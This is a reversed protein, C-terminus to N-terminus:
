MDFFRHVVNWDYVPFNSAVDTILLLFLANKGNSAAVDTNGNYTIIKNFPRQLDVVAQQVGGATMSKVVDSYIKFRNTLLQVTSYSATVTSSSLVDSVLPLTGVNMSDSFIIIRLSAAVAGTPMFVRLRLRTTELKIQAGDRQLTSDGQTIGQTLAWIQGAATSNQNTTAAIFCKREAMSKIVSMVQTRVNVSNARKSPFSVKKRGSGAM